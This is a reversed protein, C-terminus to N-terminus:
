GLCCNRKRWILYGFDEGQYPYEKGTAWLTESRGLPHCGNSTSPIPYVMQTKYQTKRIIPMPYKDCLGDVGIYGWLLGERHLKAIMRQAALLSGQVGGVHATITGTYPYLSGQCGGCWFLFDLPFGASATLCDAACAAQAIPNGFLVAEPNLIFATEDDNWLPDLETMYAVDFAATELCIFDTLLELWYILPYIYWHVHYFSHRMRNGSNNGVGGRGQIGRDMLSIGGLSVLCYPTRTVDVLRVPEWFSVPIGIRIYPPIRMPCRCLLDRPNETDEGASSVRLGGITIPFLCSWCIDTIPNVFKGVCNSNAALSFSLFILFITSAKIFRACLMAQHSLKIDNPIIARLKPIRKVLKIGTGYKRILPHGTGANRSIAPPPPNSM